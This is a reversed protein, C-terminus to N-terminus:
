NGALFVLRKWDCFNTGAVCLFDGILLIFSRGFNPAMRYVFVYTTRQLHVDLSSPWKPNQLDSPFNFVSM